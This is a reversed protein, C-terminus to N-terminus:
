VVQFGVPIINQKFNNLLVHVRSFNFNLNFHLDGLVGQQQVVEFLM